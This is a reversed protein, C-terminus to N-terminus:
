EQVSKVKRLALPSTATLAHVARSMHSQDAFGLDCALTALPTQTSRIAAVAARTRAEVRYRAATVGFVRRFGRSVTEGALGHQRAWSGLHITFPGRLSLALLDPWDDCRPAILQTPLLLERLAAKDRPDIALLPAPDAIKFASPLAETHDIPINVVMAGRASIANRHAEYDRHILVDGPCVCFRGADGAEEYTGEIVIAAYAKAHRHREVQGQSLRDLPARLRTM